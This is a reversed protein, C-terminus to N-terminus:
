IPLWQKWRPGAEAFAEQLEPVRGKPWRWWTRKFESEELERAEWLVQCVWECMIRGELLDDQSDRLSRYTRVLRETAWFPMGCFDLAPDGVGGDGWDLIATLELTAPDVFINWPHLDNHVLTDEVPASFVPGLREIWREFFLRSDPDLSTTRAIGDMADEHEAVRLPDRGLDGPIAHLKVIEVVLSDMLPLMTAPDPDLTGLTVGEAREYVTFPRDIIGRSDDYTILRPTIVGAKTALPVLQSEIAGCHEFEDFRTMRLIHNGIRWVENDMGHTQLLEPEGPIRHKAAIAGVQERTYMPVNPSM